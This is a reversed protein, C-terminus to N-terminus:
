RQTGSRAATCVLGISVGFPLRAGLRIMGAELRLPAYLLPNLVGPTAEMETREGKVRVLGLKRAIAIPPLLISNFYTARLPTWGVARAKEELESRRYRRRHHVAEDFRSWLWPYAPATIMLVAGDAAVRRLEGLVGVDDDVHEIVDALLVLDFQGPDFDLNALDGQVVNRLGRRRCFEVAKESSDVGWAREPSGFESINRGTGCGADLLRPEPPLEVRDLLAHIVARRGRFWWHADEQRYVSDYVVEEM